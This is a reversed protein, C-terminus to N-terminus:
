HDKLKAVESKIVDKLQVPLENKAKVAQKIASIGAGGLGMPILLPLYTELDITTEFYAEAFVTGFTLILIVYPIAKSTKSAM